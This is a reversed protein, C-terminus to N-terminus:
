QDLVCVLDLIENSGVVDRIDLLEELLLLFLHILGLLPFSLRRLCPWLRLSVNRRKFRMLKLFLLGFEEELVPLLDEDLQIIQHVAQVIIIHYSHVLIRELLHADSALNSGLQHQAVDYLSDIVPLSLLWNIFSLLFSFLFFYYLFAKFLLFFLPPLLLLPVASEQLPHGGDRLM